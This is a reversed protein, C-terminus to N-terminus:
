VREGSNWAPLVSKRKVREIRQKANEVSSQPPIRLGFSCSSRTLIWLRERERRRETGIALDLDEWM